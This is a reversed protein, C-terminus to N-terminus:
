KSESQKKIAKTLVIASSLNVATETSPQQELAMKALSSTEKLNSTIAYVLITRKGGDAPILQWYGQVNKVKGSVWSIDMRKPKVLDYRLTYDTTIDIMAVKIVRVDFAVIWVNGNKEKIEVKTCSPVIKPVNEFDTITNWVKEPSANVLMGITSLEIGGGMKEVSVLDGKSLLSVLSKTDLSKWAPEKVAAAHAAGAMLVVATVVAIFLRTLRYPTKLHFVELLTTARITQFM